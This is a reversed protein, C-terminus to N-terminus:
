PNVDAETCWCTMSRTSTDELWTAEETRQRGKCIVVLLLRRGAEVTVGM